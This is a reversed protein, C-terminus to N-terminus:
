EWRNLYSSVAITAEPTIVRDIDNELLLKKCMECPESKRPKGETDLSWLYVYAGKLDVPHKNTTAHLYRLADYIATPEAHVCRCADYYRAETGEGLADRRCTKGEANCAVYGKPVRNQGRGIIKGDKVIIAGHKTKRCTSDQAADWVDKAFDHFATNIVTELANEFNITNPKKMRSKMREIYDDSLRGFKLLKQENKDNVRKIAELYATSDNKGISRLMTAMTFIVDGAEDILDDIAKENTTRCTEEKVQTRQYKMLSALYEATEEVVIDISLYHKPDPNFATALEYTRQLEQEINM